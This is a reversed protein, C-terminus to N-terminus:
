SCSSKDGEPLREDREFFGDEASDKNSRFAIKEGPDRRSSESDSRHIGVRGDLNSGLAPFIRSGDSGGSGDLIGRSAKRPTASVTQIGPGTRFRRTAPEPPIVLLVPERFELQLFSEGRRHFVAIPSKM